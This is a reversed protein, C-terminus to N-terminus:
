AINRWAGIFDRKGITLGKWRLIDYTTAAHFYFNPQSFSLLFKDATFDVRFTGVELRMDRGMFTEMEAETVGELGALADTAKAKLAAFSEPLKSRDPVYVGARVSEIAGFSHAATARVQFAFPLMDPALRTELIDEPAIGQEACFAEAKDVLATISGLIQRYSPITADYLSFTM